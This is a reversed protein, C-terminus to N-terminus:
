RPVLNFTAKENESISLGEFKPKIILNVEFDQWYDVGSSMRPFVLSLRREFWSDNGLRRSRIPSFSKKLPKIIDGRNEIHVDFLEERELELLNIDYSRLFVHVKVQNKFRNRLTDAFMEAEYISKFIHRSRYDISAEIIPLSVAYAMSPLRGELVSYITNRNQVEQLAHRILAFYFEGGFDGEETIRINVDDPLPRQRDARINGPIPVIRTHELLIISDQVAKIEDDSIYIDEEDVLVTDLSITTTDQALSDTIILNSYSLTYDYESNSYAHILITVLLSYFLPSKLLRRFIAM